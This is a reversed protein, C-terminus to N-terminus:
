QSESGYDEKKDELKLTEAEQFIDQEPDSGNGFDVFVIANRNEEATEGGLLEGPLKQTVNANAFELKHKKRLYAMVAAPDGRHVAAAFHTRAMVGIQQKCATKVRYFQPHIEAFYKLQEESIGAYSIAELDTCEFKYADLLKSVKVKDIWWANASNQVPFEGYAPDTLTYAYESRRGTLTGNAARPLSRKTRKKIALNTDNEMINQSPTVLPPSLPYGEM